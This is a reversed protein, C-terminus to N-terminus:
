LYNSFFLKLADFDKMNNHLVAYVRKKDLDIYDHVLINRFGIMKVWTERLEPSILGNAEIISPVDSYWDAYGLKEDSVLHHAMDITTEIALQLYREISASIVPDALFEDLSYKQM